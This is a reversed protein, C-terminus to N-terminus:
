APEKGFLTRAEGATIVSGTIIVGAGSQIDTDEALEVALEVAGPLNYAVHVREEGFINRAEEALEEAELARPSSNTTVVIESLYPELSTLVGRYDKDSLVAVVGILRSFDFDRDLAKGLAGAGHPNHAADIFVTPATRVRELRGPSQVSAFGERVTDQNLQRGAGAGFFAEVAALACAANRAQHEGSLPLFIDTYDGGLGRISLQQGGVAVTSEIVGFEAGARAVSADVSVAQELIVNMAKPDQEAVIAVNDPPTLLDDIDWRSKIIGSKEAAIEEISEGLFDTHDLGVPMVVAVDANIVNTADWQGGMGVEVVAVDVPADAFAAYAMATLVEFKSMKPGGSEESKADVMEVYPKIEEWIRVYERPHIPVGDVAIRETVLQLHPSTTRGTRRHFARMLAEIMRVTSTKGNTGAVHIANFAREPNGLLDMLLEVRELTPDIKTESWRQDLEAEVLALSALDEPIIESSEPANAEAHMSIPLSLGEESLKVEGMGLNALEEQLTEDITRELEGEDHSHQQDAM